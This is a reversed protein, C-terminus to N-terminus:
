KVKSRMSFNPLRRDNQRSYYRLAISTAIGSYIRVAPSFGAARAAVYVTGGAIATSGYTEAHAHLIRAPKKCITDRAVGGFTATLLGCIVCIVSTMGKRIGNQAGIVCFAGLGISDAWFLIADDEKLIGDLMKWGFFTCISSLLCLFIYETEYMWFVPVSGLFLDRLTGGGIATITGIIVCGLMDMGCEGATVTASSAFAITGFWDLGRLVGNPSSLSPYRTLGDPHVTQTASLNSEPISSFNRLSLVQSSQQIYNVRGISPHSLQRTQAWGTCRGLSATKRLDNCIRNIYLARPRIYLVLMYFNLAQLALQSQLLIIIRLPQYKLLSLPQANLQESRVWQSIQGLVRM